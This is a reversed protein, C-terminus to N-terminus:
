AEEEVSRRLDLRLLLVGVTKYDVISHIIIVRYTNPNKKATCKIQRQLRCSGLFSSCDDKFPTAHRGHRRLLRSDKHFANQIHHGCPLNDRQMEVCHRRELEEASVSNLDLDIKGM